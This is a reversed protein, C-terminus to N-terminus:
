RQLGPHTAATRMSCLMRAVFLPGLMAAAAMRGQLRVQLRVLAQLRAGAHAGPVPAEPRAAMRAGSAHLAVGQLDPLGTGGASGADAHEGSSSTSLEETHSACEAPARARADRVGPEEPARPRPQAGAEQSAQAQAASAAAASGEWAQVAAVGGAEWARLPGAAGEEREQPPRAAEARWAPAHPAVSARRRLPAASQPRTRLGPPLSQTRALQAAPAGAGVCGQGASAAWSAGTGSPGGAGGAEPLQQTPRALAREDASQPERAAARGPAAGASSGAPTGAASAAPSQDTESEGASAGAAARPASSGGSVLGWDAEAGRGSACGESSRGGLPREGPRDGWADCADPRGRGSAGATSLESTPPRRAPGLAVGDWADAAEPWDVAHALFSAQVPAADDQEDVADDDGSAEHPRRHGAAEAASPGFHWAAGAQERARAAWDDGSSGLPDPTAAPGPDCAAAHARAEWPPAGPAASARRGRPPARQARASNAASSARARAHPPSAAQVDSGGGGAGRLQQGGRGGDSRREEAPPAAHPSGQQAARAHAPEEAADASRASDPANAHGAAAGSRHMDAHMSARAASPGQAGPEHQGAEHKRAAEGGPLAGHADTDGESSECWDDGPPWPASGAPDAARLVSAGPREHRFGQPVSAAGGAADPAREAPQARETAAGWAREDPLQEADLAAADASAPLARAGDQLPASGPVATMRRSVPAAPRPRESGSPSSVSRALARAARQAHANADVHASSAPPHAPDPQAVGAWAAGAASSPGALAPEFDQEEAVERPDQVPYGVPGDEDVGAHTHLARAPARWPASSPAASARRGGSPTASPTERGVASASRGLAGHARAAPRTHTSEMSYSPALSTPLHQVESDTWYTDAASQPDAPPTEDSASVWPAHAPDSLHAAAELVDWSPGAQEATTPEAAAPTAEAQSPRWPATRPDATSSRARPAAPPEGLAARPHASSRCALPAASPPRPRAGRASATRLLARPAGAARARGEGSGQGSSGQMGAAPAGGRGGADAGHLGPAAAADGDLGGAPRQWAGSGDASRAGDGGPGARSQPRAPQRAGGGSLSRRAGGSRREAPPSAELGAMLSEYMDTLAQRPDPDSAWSAAPDPAPAWGPAAGAAARGSSRRSGTTRPAQPRAGSLRGADSAAPSAASFHELEVSPTRARLQEPLGEGSSASSSAGSAARLRDPGAIAVDEITLAARASRGGHGTDRSSSRSGARAGGGARPGAGGGQLADEDDADTAEGSDRARGPAAPCGDGGSGASDEWAEGMSAPAAGRPTWAGGAPGPAASAQGAPEGSGSGAGRARGPAPSAGAKAGGRPEAPAPLGLQSWCDEEDLAYESGGSSFERGQGPDPGQSAARGGDPVCDDAGPGPDWAPGGAHSAQARTRTHLREEPVLAAQGAHGGTGHDTEPGHEAPARGARSAGAEAWDPPAEQASRPRDRTHASAAGTLAGAGGYALALERGRGVLDAGVAMYHQGADEQARVRTHAAVQGALPLVTSCAACCLMSAQM